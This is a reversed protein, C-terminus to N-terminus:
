WSERCSCETSSRRSPRCAAAAARGARRSASRCAARPACWRRSWRDARRAVARRPREGSARAARCGRRAAGAAPRGRHPSRPAREVLDDRSTPSGASVGTVRDARVVGGRRHDAHRRRRATRRCRRRAGPREDAELQRARHEGLGARSALKVLSPPTSPVCGSGACRSPATAAALLAHPLPTGVQGVQQGPGVGCGSRPLTTSTSSGLRSEGPSMGARRRASASAAPSGTGDVSTPMTRM